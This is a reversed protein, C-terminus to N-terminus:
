AEGQADAKRNRVSVFIIFVVSQEKFGACDLQFSFHYEAAKEKYSVCFEGRLRELFPEINQVGIEVNSLDFNM